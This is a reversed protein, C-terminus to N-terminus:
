APPSYHPPQFSMQRRQDLKQQMQLVRARGVNHVLLGQVLIQPRPRSRCHPLYRHFNQCCDRPTGRRMHLCAWFQLRLYNSSIQTGLTPVEDAEERKQYAKTGDTSSVREERPILIQFSVVIVVLVRCYEQGARAKQYSQGRTHPAYHTRLQHSDFHRQWTWRPCCESSPTLHTPFSFGSNACFNSLLPDQRLYLFKCHGRSPASLLQSRMQKEGEGQDKPSALLDPLSM